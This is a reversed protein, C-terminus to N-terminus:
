SSVAEELVGLEDDPPPPRDSITVPGFFGSKARENCEHWGVTAENSESEWFLPILRSPFSSLGASFVM